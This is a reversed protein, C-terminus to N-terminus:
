EEEEASVEESTNKQTAIALMRLDSLIEIIPYVGKGKLCGSILPAQLRSAHQWPGGYFLGIDDFVPAYEYLVDFGGETNMLTEAIQFADTQYTSKAFEKATKLHELITEFREHLTLLIQESKDQSAHM